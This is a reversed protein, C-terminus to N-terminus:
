GVEFQPIATSSVLIEDDRVSAWEEMNKVKENIQIIREADRIESSKIADNMYEAAVEPSLKTIRLMKKTLEAGIDSEETSSESENVDIDIASDTSTTKSASDSVEDPGPPQLGAAKLEKARVM